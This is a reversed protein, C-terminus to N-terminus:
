ADYVTDFWAALQIIAQLVHLGYSKKERHDDAIKQLVAVDFYEQIARNKLADEILPACERRLWKALPPYFSAKKLSYLHEPLIGRYADKLLTKTRRFGVHWETKTALSWETLRSDVFPVRCELGSAMTVADSLKLSEDVLWLSRDVEMMKRVPDLRTVKKFHTEMMNLAASQNFWPGRAISRNEKESRGLLRLALVADAKMALVDPPYGLLKAAASRASSPIMQLAAIIKFIRYRPYGGFLEDGGAGSLVVDVKKKAKKALLYQAVSVSDCNPQDLAEATERYADRFDEATLLLEEHDTHYHKATMLALTADRNFRAADEEKTADFRVTFTKVPKASSAAMHHLVVSSDMGGSLFIGIPRDAIMHDNVVNQMLGPLSEMAAKRTTLPPEEHVITKFSTRTERGDKWSLITGAPFSEIGQCLTKPGPVYQLTMYASLSELDIAPKVPMVKMLARMESAFHPKGNVYTLYLPKIGGTDRALHLTQTKLDYIGFAFMGLLKQVCGIGYRDYLKLIVETDTGTTCSFHETEKLRRYNYIEGNYTIVVTKDENWMPQNGQPTPDLIALRAQGFSVGNGVHIDNGDPGRHKLCTVLREIKERDEGIFGAIGCMLATHWLREDEM